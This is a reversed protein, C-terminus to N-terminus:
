PRRTRAGGRAAKGPAKRFRSERSAWPGNGSDRRNIFLTADARAPTNHSCADGDAVRMAAGASNRREVEYGRKHGTRSRRRAGKAEGGHQYGTERKGQRAGEGRAFAVVGALGRHPIAVAGGLAVGLHSVCVNVVPASGPKGVTLPSFDGGRVTMSATPRVCMRLGARGRGM